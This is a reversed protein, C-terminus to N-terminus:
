GQSARDIMTTGLLTLCHHVLSLEDLSGPSAIM